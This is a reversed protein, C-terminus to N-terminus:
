RWGCVCVYGLALTLVVVFSVPTTTALSCVGSLRVGYQAGPDQKQLGEIMALNNKFVELREAFEIPSAYEKNYKQM